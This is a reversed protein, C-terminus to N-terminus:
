DLLLPVIPALSQRATAPDFVTVTYTFSRPSQGILVNNITVLYSTDKAPPPWSQSSALGNPIWVITNEGYNLGLTELAVPVSAGGQTMTVSASSFDAGAYAFSWRPYVVQYPVFGPPPWAVFAERTPPRPGGVYSDYAWLANAAPGGAAPLDGSGMTQTQPYLIWRRHGAFGNGSGPDQMYLAIADRGFAGLALNSRGATDHGDTSYCTWTIPPNHNLQNNVSMMLAAQQDKANNADAFTVTAAVGAMARFYNLRLLVADRFTLDTMGANCNSRDGTWNIAQDQALYYTNYFARSAARSHPFITLPGGQSALRALEMAREWEPAVAAPRSQPFVPPQGLDVNGALSSTVWLLLVLGALSFRCAMRSAHPLSLFCPRLTM